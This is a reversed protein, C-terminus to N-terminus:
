RALDVISDVDVDGDVEVDRTLTSTSTSTLRLGLTAALSSPGSAAHLGAGPVDRL